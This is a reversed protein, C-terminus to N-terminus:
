ALSLGATPSSSTGLGSLISLDSLRNNEKDRTKDERQDGIQATAANEEAGPIRANQMNQMMQVQQNYSNQAQMMQGQMMQQFEQMQSSQQEFMSELKGYRETFGATLQAIREDFQATLMATNDAIGKAQQNAFDQARQNAAAIDDQLSGIIDEYQGTNRPSEEPVGGGGGGGPAAGNALVPNSLWSEIQDLDNYSDVRSIGLANVARDLDFRSYRDVARQFATRPSPKNWANAPYAARAM